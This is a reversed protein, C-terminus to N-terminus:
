SVWILVFISNFCTWQVVGAAIVGGDFWSCRDALLYANVIFFVLAAVDQVSTSFLSGRILAM